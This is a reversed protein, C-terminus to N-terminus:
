CTKVHYILVQSGEKDSSLYCVSYLPKHDFNLGTGTNRLASTCRTLWGHSDTPGQWALFIAWSRNATICRNHARTGPISNKMHTRILQANDLSRRIEVSAYIHIPFCAPRELNFQYVIHRLAHIWTKTWWCKPKHSANASKNLCHWSDFLLVWLGHQIIEVFFTLYVKSCLFFETM